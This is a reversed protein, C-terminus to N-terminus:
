LAAAFSYPGQAAHAGPLARKIAAAYATKVGDGIQPVALDYFAVSIMGAAETGELDQAITDGSDMAQLLWAPLCGAPCAARLGAPRGAVLLCWVLALLHGSGLLGAQM